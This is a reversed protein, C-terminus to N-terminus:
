RAQIRMPPSYAPLFSAKGLIRTMDRPPIASRASGAKGFRVEGAPFLNLQYSFRKEKDIDNKLFPIRSMFFA